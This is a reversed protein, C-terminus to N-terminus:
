HFKKELRGRLKERDDQTLSRPAVAPLAFDQGAAPVGPDAVAAKAAPTSPKRKEEEPLAM